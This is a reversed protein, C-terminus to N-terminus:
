ACSGVPLISPPNLSSPDRALALQPNYLRLTLVLGRDGPTPLWAQADNAAAAGGTWLSFRGAGDLVARAGNLSYRRGEDPFLFYDDAYATISWWRAPPPVGEIRYRCRSRLPHGLDDHDAVFYLTEERSLALLAIRAVKARTYLDADASGGVLSTSWAGVRIQAGLLPSRLFVFTAAVGALLALAYLAVLTLRRPQPV